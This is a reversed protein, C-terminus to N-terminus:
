RPPGRSRRDLDGADPFALWVLLVGVVLGAVTAALFVVPGADAQLTILGCSVGVIVVFGAELKRMTSVREETGIPGVM